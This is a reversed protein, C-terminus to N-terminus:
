KLERAFFASAKKLIIVDQKLLANEQELQRIRIQETSLGGSAAVVFPKAQHQDLWRKIATKGVGTSQYVQTISLNQESIMKVVQLKFSDDYIKRVKKM